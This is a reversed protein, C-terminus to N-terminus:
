DRGRSRAENRSRSLLEMRDVANNTIRGFTSALTTRILNEVYTLMTTLVLSVLTIPWMSVWYAITESFRSMKVHYRADGLDIEGKDFRLEVKSCHAKWRMIAIVIGIPLYIVVAICWVKWSWSPQFILAAVILMALMGLVSYGRQEKYDLVITLGIIAGYFFPSALVGLVFENM